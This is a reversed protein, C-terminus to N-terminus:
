RRAQPGADAAAAAAEAQPGAAKAAEVAPSELARSRIANIAIARYHQAALDGALSLPTNQLIALPM